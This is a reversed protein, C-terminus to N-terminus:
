ASTTLRKSCFSRTIRYSSKEPMETESLHHSAPSVPYQCPRSYQLLKKLTKENIKRRIKFKRRQCQLCKVVQLNSLQDINLGTSICWSKPSTSLLTWASDVMQASWFIRSVNKEAERQISHFRLRLWPTQFGSSFLAIKNLNRCGCLTAWEFWYLLETWDRILFETRCHTLVNKDRASTQYPKSM